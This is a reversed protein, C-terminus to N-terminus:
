PLQLRHSGRMADLARVVRPIAGFPDDSTVGPLARLAAVFKPWATKHDNGTLNAYLQAFTGGAGLAVLGQAVSSLAINQSLLWSIFAMGCGISVKNEDSPDTKNVFDAFNPADKAWTPASAFDGLADDSVSAACWRSLAEGTSVGCLNGGMNCESLEAELLARLRDSRGFSACVEIDQGVVYDCARHDAGGTGDTKDDLAWLIVNISGASTGFFHDNAQVVRDADSLLDEANQQGKDGLESDVYVTVRRSPSTGVLTAQGRFNVWKPQAAGNDSIPEDSIMLDFKKRIIPDALRRPVTQYLKYGEALIRHFFEHLALQQEYSLEEVDRSSCFIGLSLRHFPNRSGNLRPAQAM